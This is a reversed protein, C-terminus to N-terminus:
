IRLIFFPVLNSSTRGLGYGRKVLKSQLLVSGEDESRHVVEVVAIQSTQQARQQRPRHAADNGSSDATAGSLAVVSVGCNAHPRSLGSIGAIYHAHERRDHDRVLFELACKSACRDRARLDGPVKKRSELSFSAAFSM